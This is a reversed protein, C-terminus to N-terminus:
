VFTPEGFGGLAAKARAKEGLQLTMRGLASKNLDVDRTIGDAGKTKGMIVPRGNAIGSNILSPPPVHVGTGFSPILSTFLNQSGPSSLGTSGSMPVGPVAASARRSFVFFAVGAAVVAAGILLLTSTKPM